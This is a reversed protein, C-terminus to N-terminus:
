RSEARCDDPRARRTARRDAASVAHRKGSSRFMVSCSRVPASSTQEHLRGPSLPASASAPRGGISQPVFGGRNSLSVEPVVAAGRAIRKRLSCSSASQLWIQSVIPIVSPSRFKDDNRKRMGVTEAVANVGKSTRPTGITRLRSRMGRAISFSRARVLAVTKGPM